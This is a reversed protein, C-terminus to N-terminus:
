RVGFAVCFPMARKEKLLGQSDLIQKVKSMDLNHAQVDYSDQMAEICASQWFPFEKSLFLRVAKPKSPDFGATTKGKAKKKMFAAESGRISNVLSRVYTIADLATQDTPGSLQPFGATHVSSSNRLIFKWMHEAFHPAIPLILLAQVNMFRFVLEHHM